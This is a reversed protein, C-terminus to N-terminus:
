SWTKSGDFQIGDIVLIPYKDKFSRQWFVVNSVDSCQVLYTIDKPIIWCNNQQSDKSLCKENYTIWIKKKEM